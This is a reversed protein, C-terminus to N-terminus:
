RGLAPSFAAGRGPAPFSIDQREPPALTLVVQTFQRLMGVQDPTVWVYCERGCGRYHGVYCACKPVDKKCGIFFWPAGFEPKQLLDQLVKVKDEAQDILGPNRRTPSKADERSTFKDGCEVELVKLVRRVAEDREIPQAVAITVTGPVNAQPGWGERRGGRRASWSTKVGKAQGYDTGMPGVVRDISHARSHMEDLRKLVRCYEEVVEPNACVGRAKKLLDGDPKGKGDGEEVAASVKNTAVELCQAAGTLEKYADQNSNIKDTAKSLWAYANELETAIDPDGKKLKLPEDVKPPPAKCEAPHDLSKLVEFAERLMALKRRQDGQTGAEDLANHAEAAARRADCYKSVAKADGGELAEAAEHLRTPIDKKSHLANIANTVAGALEPCKGVQSELKRLEAMADWLLQSRKKGLIRQLTEEGPLVDFRVALECTADEIQTDVDILGPHGPWVSKVGKAYALRLLNLEDAEVAPEVDWQGVIGRQAAASPLLRTVEGGTATAIDAGFAGSGQDAVQVLGGSVRLHWPMTDPNCAFMALNDLVQQYQLDTLTSAQKVTRRELAVHTCGTTLALAALTAFLPRM